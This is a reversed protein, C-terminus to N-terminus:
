KQNLAEMAKLKEFTSIQVTGSEESKSIAEYREEITSIPDGTNKLRSLEIYRADISYPEIRDQKIMVVYIVSLFVIVSLLIYLIHKNRNHSLVPHNITSEIDM